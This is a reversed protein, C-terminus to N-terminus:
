AVEAVILANFSGNNLEYQVGNVQQFFEIRLMYLQTGTGAPSGGPDLSVSTTAGDIPLNVENTFEISSIGTVFNIKEFAGAFTLHTAGQPFKVDNIPVLDPITMKGSPQDVTYPKFLISGMQSRINFEFGKLLAIAAPDTIATGVNREGRPSTTDMKRIDSMLKTVRSALRPDSATKSLAHNTDRLLKGSKAASGFEAGNERVRAFNPDNDIRSKSISSKSKVLYGDQTKYFTVDNITGEIKVIGKQHGM